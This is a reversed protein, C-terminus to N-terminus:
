PKDEHDLEALVDRITYACGAAVFAWWGGAFIAGALGLLSFYFWFRAQLLKPVHIQDKM